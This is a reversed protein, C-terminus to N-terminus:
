RIMEKLWDLLAYLKLAKAIEDILKDIARQLGEAAEQMTKKERM